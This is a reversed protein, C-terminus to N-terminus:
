LSMIGDTANCSQKDIALVRYRESELEYNSAQWRLRTSDIILPNITAKYKLVKMILKLSKREGRLKKKQFQREDLADKNPRRVEKADIDTDKTIMM